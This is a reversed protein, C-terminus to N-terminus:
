KKLRLVEWEGSCILMRQFFRVVHKKTDLGHQKKALGHATIFTRALQVAIINKSVALWKLVTIV